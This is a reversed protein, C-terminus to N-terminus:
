CETLKILENTVYFVHGEFSLEEIAETVQSANLKDRLHHVIVQVHTGERSSCDKIARKVAEIPDLATTKSLPQLCVHAYIADLLHFTIENTNQIVRIHHAIMRTKTQIRQPRGIIHVFMATALQEMDDHLNSFGETWVQVDIAGTGDEVVLSAHAEFRSMSRIYGMFYVSHIEKHDIFFRSAEDEGEKITVLQIQKITIPRLSHVVKDAINAITPM